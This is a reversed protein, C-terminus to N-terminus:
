MRHNLTDRLFSMNEYYEWIKKKKAASGSKKNSEYEGKVRVYTDRLNRWKTMLYKISFEPQELIFM